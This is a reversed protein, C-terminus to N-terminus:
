FRSQLRQRIAGNDPLLNDFYNEVSAGRLSTNELPLPLSLSLPRRAEVNDLWSQDYLFEPPCRQTTAVGWGAHREDM